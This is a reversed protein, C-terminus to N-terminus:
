LKKLKEKIKKLFNSERVDYEDLLAMKELGDIHNNLTNSISYDGANKTKQLLSFAEDLHQEASWTQYTDDTIISNIDKKLREDVLTNVELRNLLPHAQRALSAIRNKEFSSLIGDAKAVAIYLHSIGMSKFTSIKQIDM